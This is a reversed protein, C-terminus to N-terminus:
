DVTVYLFLFIFLERLLLVLLAQKAESKNGIDWCSLAVFNQLAVHALAMGFNGRFCKGEWLVLDGHLLQPSTGATQTVALPQAAWPVATGEGQTERKLGDRLETGFWTLFM